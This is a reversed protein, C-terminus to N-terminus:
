PHCIFDVNETNEYINVAQSQQIFTYRKASASVIYTEGVAVDAFRYYGFSNSIASSSNGNSDTLTLRVNRIGRGSATTVRGGVSVSAGTATDPLYDIGNLRGATGLTNVPQVNNFTLVGTTSDANYTTINRSNGNAAFLFKGGGDFVLADTLTGGSAFPTGPVANLTTAAGSFAIQYAGVRNGTRDAVYYFNENPSLVGDVATSLGSAFPNGTVGTPIGSATTFARVENTFNALLLRGQSDTAYGVPENGFDQAGSAFPSGALSTLVGTASNVSFGAFLNGLNGGGTYYYSGNRSFVSSFPGATGTSFPSGAAAAATTATINYSNVKRTNSGDSAGVILPSGSPHVAITAWSGAGLAIPSFPLATLAGTTSNISYASVTNSGDNIVYLRRNLRDITIEESVTLGGGAGAAIPFGALATLTGTSENVNYGYIRNGATSDNFAYLVGARANACLYILLALPVFLSEINGRVISRLGGVIEQGISPSRVVIGRVVGLYQTIKGTEIENETTVVM